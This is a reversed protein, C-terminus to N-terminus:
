LRDPCLPYLLFREGRGPISGRDGPGLGYDSVISVSSGLKQTVSLNDNFLCSVFVILAFM